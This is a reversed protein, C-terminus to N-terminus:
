VFLRHLYNLKNITKYNSGIVAVLSFICLFVYWNNTKTENRGLHLSILFMNSDDVFLDVMAGPKRCGPQRVIATLRTFTFLLFM